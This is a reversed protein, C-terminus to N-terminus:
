DQPPAPPTLGAYQLVVRIRRAARQDRRDLVALADLFMECYTRHCHRCGGLRDPMHREATQRALQVMDAVHDGAPPADDGSRPAPAVGRAAILNFRPDADVDTEGPQRQPLPPRGPTPLQNILHSPLPPRSFRDPEDNRYPM